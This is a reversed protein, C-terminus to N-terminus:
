ALKMQFSTEAHAPRQLRRCLGLTEPNPLFCAEGDPPSIATGDRLLGISVAYLPIGYILNATGDVPDVIWLNQLNM